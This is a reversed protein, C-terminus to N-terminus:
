SDELGIPPTINSAFIESDTRRYRTFGAINRQTTVRRIHWEKLAERAEHCDAYSVVFHAGSDDIRHLSKSLRELDALKFCKAGYERFVRRGSVAYPPDLYVFDGKRVEPLLDDFDGCKLCAKGLAQSASYLEERSPINGTKAPAYPVNFRGQLNTRYLGNFCFRNLYIFRAAREVTSSQQMDLGRIYYYTDRNKPIAALCDYVAGPSTQVAVYTNILEENLDGLLASPPSLKYFLCASGVFPEIYRTYEAPCYLVLKPLLQRKSGAWRLFPHANPLIQTDLIASAKM